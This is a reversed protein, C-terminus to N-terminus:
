NTFYYVAVHATAITRELKQGHVFNEYKYSSKGLEIFNLEHIHNESQTLLIKKLIKLISTM